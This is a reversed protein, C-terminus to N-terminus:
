QDTHRGLVEDLTPSGAHAPPGIEFSVRSVRSPFGLVLFGRISDRINTHCSYYNGSGKCLSNPSWGGSKLPTTVRSERGFAGFEGFETCHPASGAEAAASRWSRRPQPRGTAFVAPQAPLALACGTGGPTSVRRGIRSRPRAAPRGPALLAAPSTPDRVGRNRRRLCREAFGPM